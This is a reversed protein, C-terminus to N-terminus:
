TFCSLNNLLNIIEKVTYYQIAFITFKNTKSLVIATYLFVAFLNSCINYREFKNMRHFLSLGLNKILDLAIM